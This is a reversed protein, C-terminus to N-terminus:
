LRIPDSFVGFTGGALDFTLGAADIPVGILTSLNPLAPFAAERASTVPAVFLASINLAAATFADYTLAISLGLSDLVLPTNTGSASILVAAPDGVDGPAFKVLKLGLSQATLDVLEPLKTGSVYVNNNRNSGAPNDRDDLWIGVVDGNRTVAVQPDDVDVVPTTTGCSGRSTVQVSAHWTAGGDSSTALAFEEGPSCQEWAVVAVDGSIDTMYLASNITSLRSEPRPGALFGRGGQDDAVVFVSNLANGTGFRDDRYAVVLRDGSAAPALGDIDVGTPTVNIQVPGQWSGGRDNSVLLKVVDVSTTNSDEMLVYANTSAALAYSRRPDAFPSATTNNSHVIETVSGLDAGGTTSVKGYTNTLRNSPPMVRDDQWVVNVLDGDADISGFDVDATGSPYATNLRTQPTLTTMAGGVFGVSAYYVDENASSPTDARFIVHLRGNSAAAQPEECDLLTNTPGQVGTSILLPQSWTQGQDASGVVYVARANTATTGRNLTLVVYVQHDACVLRTWGSALVEGTQVTLLDSPSGFTRGGDVSRRVRFVPLNTTSDVDLYSAYAVQATPVTGPLTAGIRQRPAAVRWSGFGQASIGPLAVVPVYNTNLKTEGRPLGIPQQATSTTIAVGVAAACSLIHLHTRM